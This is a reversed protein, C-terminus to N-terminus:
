CAFDQPQTGDLCVFIDSLVLLGLGSCEGAAVVSCGGGRADALWGFFLTFFVVGPLAGRLVLDILM